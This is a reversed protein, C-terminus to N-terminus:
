SSPLLGEERGRSAHHHSAATNEDLVTKILGVSMGSLIGLKQRPSVNSDWICFIMLFGLFYGLLFGILFERRASNASSLEPDFVSSSSREVEVTPTLRVAPAQTSSSQARGALGGASDAAASSRLSVGATSKAVVGHIYSESPLGFTALSASDPQLLKGNHILRLYKEEEMAIASSIKQKLQSVTTAPSVRLDVEQIGVPTFRIRLKIAEEGASEALLSESDM